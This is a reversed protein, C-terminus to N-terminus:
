EHVCRWRAGARAAQASVSTESTVHPDVGLGHRQQVGLGARSWRTWSSARGISGDGLGRLAGALWGALRRATAWRLPKARRWGSPVGKVRASM